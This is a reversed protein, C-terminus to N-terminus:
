NSIFYYKLLNVRRKRYCDYLAPQDDKFFLVKLPKINDVHPNELIDTIAALAEDDKKRETNSSTENTLLQSHMLLYYLRPRALIQIMMLEYNFIFILYCISERIADNLSNITEELDSQITELKQISFSLEWTEINYSFSNLYSFSALNVNLMLM